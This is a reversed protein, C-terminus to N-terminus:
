NKETILDAYGCAKSSVLRGIIFDLTIYLFHVKIFGFYGVELIRWSSVFDSKGSSVNRNFYASLRCILYFYGM